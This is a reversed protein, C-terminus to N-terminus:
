GGLRPGLTYFGDKHLPCAEGVVPREGIRSNAERTATLFTPIDEAVVFFGVNWEDAWYHAFSAASRVKGEDVLAQYAPIVVNEFEALVDGLRSTQCQLYTMMLTPNGGTPASESGASAGGLYFNDRHSPCAEIIANSAPNAEAFAGNAAANASVASEMTPAVIYRMFNWEDAYSHVYVGTDMITGATKQEQWYPLQAEAQAVIEAMRNWDCKFSSIIV